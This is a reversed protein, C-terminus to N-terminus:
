LGAEAVQRKLRAKRADNAKSVKEAEIEAKVAVSAALKDKLSSLRVKLRRLKHRPYTPPKAALESELRAIEAGVQEHDVMRLRRLQRVFEPHMGTTTSM